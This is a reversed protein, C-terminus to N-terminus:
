HGEVEFTDEVRTLATRVNASSLGEMFTQAQLFNVALRRADDDSLWNHPVCDGVKVTGDKVLYRGIGTDTERYTEFFADRLTGFWKYENYELPRTPPGLPRHEERRQRNFEIFYTQMEANRDEVTRFVRHAAGSNKDVETLCLLVAVTSKQEIWWLTSEDDDFIILGDPEKYSKRRAIASRTLHGANQIRSTVQNSVGANRMVSVAEDVMSDIVILSTREHLYSPCCNITVKQSEGDYWLRYRRNSKEREEIIKNYGDESVIFELASDDPLPGCLIELVKSIESKM